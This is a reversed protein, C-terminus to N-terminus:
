FGVGTIEGVAVILEWIISINTIAITILVFWIYDMPHPNEYFYTVFDLWDQSANDNKDDNSELVDVGDDVDVDDVDVDDVDVDDVVVDDVDVDDVDAQEEFGEADSVYSGDDAPDDAPDDASQGFGERDKVNTEKIIIHPEDIM